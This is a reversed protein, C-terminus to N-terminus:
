YIKSLCLAHIVKKKLKIIMMLTKKKQSGSPEKLRFTRKLYLTPM